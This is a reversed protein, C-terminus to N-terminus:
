PRLRTTEERPEPEDRAGRDVQVLPAAKVVVKSWARRGPRHAELVRRPLGHALDVCRVARRSSVRIRSLRRLGREHQSVARAAADLRSRIAAQSAASASLPPSPASVSLPPAPPRVAGGPPEGVPPKTPGPQGFQRANHRAGAMLACPQALHFSDRFGNPATEDRSPEFGEGEAGELSRM